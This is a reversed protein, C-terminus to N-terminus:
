VAEEPTMTVVQARSVPLCEIRRDCDNCGKKNRHIFGEIVISDKGCSRCFASCSWTDKIPFWNEASCSPCIWAIEADWSEWHGKGKRAGELEIHQWFEDNSVLRKCKERAMPLKSAGVVVPAVIPIMFRFKLM